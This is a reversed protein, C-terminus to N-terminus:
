SRIFTVRSKSIAPSIVRGIRHVPEGSETLAQCIEDVHDENVLLVM